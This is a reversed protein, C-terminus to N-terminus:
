LGTNPAIHKDVVYQAFPVACTWGPSVANLVHTSHGDGRVVFDMELELSQMNVLQARIGARGYRGFSGPAASPVLATAGRQMIAPIHKSLEKAALSPFGFKSGVMLRAHRCTHM